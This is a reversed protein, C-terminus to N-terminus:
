ARQDGQVGKLAGPDLWIDACTTCRDVVVDGEYTERTLVRGDGPCQM